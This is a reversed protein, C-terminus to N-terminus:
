LVVLEDDSVYRHKISKSNASEDADSDISDSDTTSTANVPGLTGDKRGGRVESEAVHISNRNGILSSRNSSLSIKSPPVNAIDHCINSRSKVSLFGKRSMRPPSHSNSSSVLSLEAPKVQPDLIIFDPCIKSIRKATLLPILGGLYELYLVYMAGALQSNGPTGAPEQEHDIRKMTCQLRLHSKLPHCVFARLHKQDPLFGKIISPYLRRLNGKLNAPLACQDLADFSVKALHQKIRMQCITLM